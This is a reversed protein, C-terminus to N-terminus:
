EYIIKFKEGKFANEDIFKIGKPIIVKTINKNNSFIKSAIVKTDEHFRVEADKEYSLSGLVYYTVAVLYPNDDNGLYALSILNVRSLTSEFYFGVLNYFQYGCNEFVNEKLFEISNPLKVVKLNYCGYFAKTKIGKIGEEFYLEKIEDHYSYAKAGVIEVHYTIGEYTITSKVTHISENGNYKVLVAKFTTNFVLYKNNDVYIISDYDSNVYLNGNDKISWEAPIYDKDILISAYDGCNLSNYSVEELQDKLKIIDLNCMYFVQRGLRKLSYPLDIELLNSCYKFAYDGISEVSENFTVSKLQKLDAFQYKGVEKIGKPIVLNELLYYDGSEDKLYFEKFYKFVSYTINIMCWDNITGDFYLQNVNRLNFVEKGINKVTSPITVSVVNPMNYFSYDNLNEIGEPIKLDIPEYYQNDDDHLFFHKSYLLLPHQKFLINCWDEIKGEYYIGDIMRSNVNKFNSIKTISIPITLTKLNINSSITCDIEKVPLGNYMSPIDIHYNNRNLINTIIYYTCDPSLDYEIFATRTEEYLATIVIDSTICSFDKDWGIFKYGIVEPILPEVAPRNEQVQYRKLVEGFCNQFLVTYTKPAQEGCECYGMDSFIHVHTDTYKGCECKGNENYVHDHVFGCSCLGDIFEHTHINEVEGCTCIGGVFTHTHEKHCSTLTILLCLIFITKKIVKM